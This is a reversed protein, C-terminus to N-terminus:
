RVAGGDVVYFLAGRWACSESVMKEPHKWFARFGTLVGLERKGLAKGRVADNAVQQLDFVTMVSVDHEVCLYVKM